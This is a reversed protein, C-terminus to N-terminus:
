KYCNPKGSTSHPHPECRKVKDRSSQRPQSPHFYCSLFYPNAYFALMTGNRIQKISMETTDAVKISIATTDALIKTANTFVKIDQSEMPSLSWSLELEFMWLGIYDELFSGQGKTFDLPMKADM